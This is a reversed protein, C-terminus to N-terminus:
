FFSNKATSFTENRYNFLRKNNVIVDNFQKTLSNEERTESVFSQRGVNGMENLGIIAGALAMVRDFNGDMNFTLLEQLLGRDPIKDINRITVSDNSERVELLWSRVYQLAEYKIRDNSMPYGYELVQSSEYSAKKNFVTHPKRALLDIRKMKEFYDKVNGVSNEFYVKANGYFLSLKFLNENVIDRGLYPRGMYTAVIEDHGVTDFHKSTKLVYIVGLSNGRTTDDKYPDHGIIYADEPVVGNVLHPLEYIVVCGDRNDEDWPFKDIATLRNAVDIAYNVGNYESTPDFFLEVKKALKEYVNEHEVVTMRRRVEATPFVNSSKTLFMESPVIPNFIIEKNLADSSGTRLGERIGIIFNKAEEIRTFGNKDKFQRRAMYAPVFYGIKGKNEYTDPFSLMEYSHPNYFMEMAALAGAEMDGGTGLYITSAFKRGSDDRQADKMAAHVEKSNACVGVEEIILETPRSGVGAQANDGFTRNKIKTVSGADKWTGGVKKKYSFEVESGATWSGKYRRSLPAPYVRSGLTTEGPLRELALKTKELLLNSYKSEYAGVMLETSFDGSINDAYSFTGDFLYSHLVVGIGVMYSKGFNRCGLMMLNSAENEYLPRGLNASHQRRLYEHADQYTKLQGDPAVVSPCNEILFEKSYLPDLLIKNCTYAHDEEFGSFGRAQTWNYFFDWEIDRLTPRGYSKVNSNGKNLKITGFNAYFYLKPPMWYGGLWYGEISRVKQEKWFTLYDRSLPNLKPIDKLLFEQTNLIM